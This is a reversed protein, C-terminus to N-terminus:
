QISQGYEDGLRDGPDALKFPALQSLHLDAGDARLPLTNAITHANFVGFEGVIRGPFVANLEVLVNGGPGLIVLLRAHHRCFRIM